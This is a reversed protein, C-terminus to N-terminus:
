PVNIVPDGRDLRTTITWCRAYLSPCARFTVKLPCNIPHTYAVYGGVVGDLDTDELETLGGGSPNEPLEAREQPSLSARYGPDKWARIIKQTDM